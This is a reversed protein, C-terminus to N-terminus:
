NEEGPVLVRWEQRNLIPRPPKAQFPSKVPGFNVRDPDGVILAGTVDKMRVWGGRKIVTCAYRYKPYKNLELRNLGIDSSFHYIRSPNSLAIQVAKQASDHWHQTDHPLGSELIIASVLSRGLTCGTQAEGSRDDVATLLVFDSSTSLNRIAAEFFAESQLPETEADGAGGLNEFIPPYGGKSGNSPSEFPRPPGIVANGTTLNAFLWEGKIVNQKKTLVVNGAFTVKNAGIAFVAKDGATTQDQYTLLVNGSAELRLIHTFGAKRLDVTSEGATARGREYYVTVFRSKITTDGLRVLVWSGNAGYREVGGAEPEALEAEIELPKIRNQLLGFFDNSAPAQAQTDTTAWTTCIAMAVLYM